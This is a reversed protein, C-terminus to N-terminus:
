ENLFVLSYLSGNIHAAIYQILQSVSFAVKVFQPLSNLAMEQVIPFKSSKIRM